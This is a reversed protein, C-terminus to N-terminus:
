RLVTVQQQSSFTEGTARVFYVGAALGASSFTVAREGAVMGDFLTSILLGRVNYVEVRVAETAEAFVRLDTSFSFPNAGRVELGSATPGAGPEAAVSCGGRSRDELAAPSEPSRPAFYAVGIRLELQCGGRVVDVIPQGIGNPVVVVPINVFEADDPASMNGVVDATGVRDSGNYVVVAIAGADQANDAKYAFACVGRRILVTRGSIDNAIDTPDTQLPGTCGVAETGDARLGVVARGGVSADTYAVGLPQGTTTTFVSAGVYLTISSDQPFYVPPLNGPGMRNNVVVNLDYHGRVYLAPEQQNIQASSSASLLVLAVLAACLLRM